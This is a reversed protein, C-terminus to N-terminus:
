PVTGQFPPLAASDCPGWCQFPAGVKQIGGLVPGDQELQSSKNLYSAQLLSLNLQRIAEYRQNWFSPCMFCFWLRGRISLCALEKEKEELPLPGPKWGRVNGSM